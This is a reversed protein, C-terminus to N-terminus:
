QQRLLRPILVIRESRAAIQPTSAARRVIISRGSTSMESTACSSSAGRLHGLRPLGPRTDTEGCAHDEWDAAVRKRLDHECSSWCRLSGGRFAPSWNCASLCGIRITARGVECLPVGSQRIRPLSLILYAQWLLSDHLHQTEQTRDADSEHEGGQDAAETGPKGRLVSLGLFRIVGRNRVPGHGHRERTRALGVALHEVGVRVFRALPNDVHGIVDHARPVRRYCVPARLENQGILDLFVPSRGAVLPRRGAAVVVEVDVRMGHSVDGHVM